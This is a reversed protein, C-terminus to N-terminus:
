ILTKSFYELFKIYTPLLHYSTLPYSLRGNPMSARQGKVQIIKKKMQYIINTPLKIYCQLMEDRIKKM